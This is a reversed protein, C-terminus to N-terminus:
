SNKTNRKFIKAVSKFNQDKKEELFYYVVYYNTIM